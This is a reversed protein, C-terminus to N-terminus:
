MNCPSLIREKGFHFLIVRLVKFYIDPLFLVRSCRWSLILCYTPFLSQFVSSTWRRFSQRIGHPRGYSLHVGFVHVVSHTFQTKVVREAISAIDLRHSSSSCGQWWSVIGQEERLTVLIRKRTFCMALMWREWICSTVPWAGVPFRVRSWEYM